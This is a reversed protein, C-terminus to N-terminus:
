DMKGEPFDIKIFEQTLKWLRECAEESEALPNVEAVKCEAFYNGSQDEIGSETALFVSTSAGEAAKVGFTSFFRWLLNHVINTKKSGLNTKVLGPHAAFVSIGHGKMRKSLAKTFMVNALKSQGYAQTINYESKMEPNDWHMDAKLHASSAVNVIRAQGAAKLPNLLGMTMLYYGLHNVAWQMEVGDVTEKYTSYLTAANNVLVHIKPYDARLRECVVKISEQSSLDVLYFAHAQDPNAGKIEQLAKEGKAANRGLAIVTFGKQALQKATALGIGSTAGTIVAIQDM